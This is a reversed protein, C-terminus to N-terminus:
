PVARLQLRYPVATVGLGDLRLTASGAAPLTIPGICSPATAGQLSATFNSTGGVSAGVVILGVRQSGFVPGNPNILLCADFKAGPSERVEFM